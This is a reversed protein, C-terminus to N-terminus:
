VNIDVIMRAIDKSPIEMAKRVLDRNVSYRSIYLELSDFADISKGDMEVIIGNRVKVSPKPDYPSDMASLGGEPWQVFFSDMNIPKKELKKFRKSKKM